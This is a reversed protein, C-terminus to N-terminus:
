NGLVFIEEHERAADAFSRTTDMGLIAEHYEKWRGEELLSLMLATLEGRDQPSFTLTNQLIRQPLGIEKTVIVPVGSAYSELVFNPSIDSLSPLVALWCTKIKRLVEKHSISKEFKISNELHLEKSIVRLAEEEPGEGVINLILPKSAQKKLDAFAYLLTKVNKLKVLRGAYLLILPLHPFDLSKKSIAPFPNEIVAARSIKKNFYKIYLNKQFESSFILFDMKSILYRLLFFKMIEMPTKKHQAYYAEIPLDTKGSEFAREWLFDGGIRVAVKKRMVKTVFLAPLLLKPSSSLVYCIDMNRMGQFLKMVSRAEGGTLIRARHGSRALGDALSSAYSAPGGVGQTSISHLM